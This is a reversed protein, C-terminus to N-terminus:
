HSYTVREKAKWKFAETISGNKLNRLAEHAANVNRTQDAIVVTKEEGAYRQTSAFTELPSPM